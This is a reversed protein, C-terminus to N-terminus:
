RAKPVYIRHECPRNDAEDMWRLDAVIPRRGDATGWEAFMSPAGYQGDLDTLTSWVTVEESGRAKDSEACTAPVWEGPMVRHDYEDPDPNHESLRCVGMYPM